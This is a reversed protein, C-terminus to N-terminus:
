KVKRIVLDYKCSANKYKYSLDTNQEAINYTTIFITQGRRLRLEIDIKNYEDNDRLYKSVDDLTESNDGTKYEEILMKTFTDSDLIIFKNSDISSLQVRKFRQGDKYQIEFMAMPCKLEKSVINSIEIKYLGNKSATFKVRRRDKSKAKSTTQVKITTHGTKVSNIKSVRETTVAVVKTEKKKENDIQKANIATINNVLLMGIIFISICSRIIAKVGNKM